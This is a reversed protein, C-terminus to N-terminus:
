LHSFLKSSSITSYPPRGLRARGQPIYGDQCSFFCGLPLRTPGERWSNFQQTLSGWSIWIVWPTKHQSFSLFSLRISVLLSNECLEAPASVTTNWPHPCDCRSWSRTTECVRVRQKLMFRTSPPTCSWQGGKNKRRGLTKPWWSNIKSWKRM